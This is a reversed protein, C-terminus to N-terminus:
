DERLINPHLSIPSLINLLSQKFKKNKNKNKSPIQLPIKGELHRM